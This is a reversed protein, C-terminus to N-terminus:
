ETTAITIRLLRPPLLGAVIILRSVAVLRRGRTGAVACGVLRAPLVRAPLVRLALVRLALVRLALVRLALVRLALVRLALLPSALVRLALVPALVRPALAEAIVLPLVAVIAISGPATLGALRIILEAHVETAIIPRAPICAGVPGAALAVIMAVAVVARDLTFAIGIAVLATLVARMAVFLLACLTLAALSLAELLGGCARHRFLAAVVRDVLRDSFYRRPM